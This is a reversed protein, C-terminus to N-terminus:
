LGTVTGLTPAETQTVTLDATGGNITLTSFSKLGITFALLGYIKNYIVPLPIKTTPDVEFVLEKLYAKVSTQFAAKVDAAIAGAAYQAGTVVINVALNDAAAVTCANGLPVKGDGLGTAGPDLYAQTDNVVQTTAPTLDLGALLVKSTNVGAWRPIVKAKGVGAVEQAWRQLDYKNGGTDPHTAKFDYREWAEEDTEPDRALITTGQDAIIRVGPISPQLVFQSGAALNGITGVAQCTINLTLATSTAWNVAADATFKLPQGQADLVVAYLQQGLPINVGADATILLARKNHTAGIRTLGVDYLCDDLDSGEAYLAFRSALITDQNIQLQKIEAPSPAVADYMFDGPEARWGDAEVKAIMRDRIATETEEFVPQFNNRAM